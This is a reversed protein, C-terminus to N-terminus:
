QPRNMAATLARNRRGVEQELAVDEVDIPGSPPAVGYLGSAKLVEVAAPLPAESEIERKLVELAKPLLSRLTDVMAVWLEQRRSNLEAQFGPHQTLWESVTQRPVELIKATDTVTKGSVLLDVATGQQPTLSWDTPAPIPDTPQRRRPM